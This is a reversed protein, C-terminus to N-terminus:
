FGCLYKFLQYGGMLIKIWHICLLILEYTYVGVNGCSKYMVVFFLLPQVLCCIFGKAIMSIGYIIEFRNLHISEHEGARCKEVVLGIFFVIFLLVEAFGILTLWKRVSLWKFLQKQTCQRQEQDYAYCLDAILFPILLFLTGVYM